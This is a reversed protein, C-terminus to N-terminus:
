QRPAPVAGNRALRTGLNDPLTIVWGGHELDSARLVVEGGDAGASTVRVVWRDGQDIVSDFDHREGPSVPGLSVWGAHDANTVDVDVTYPTPNRITLRNVTAPSQLASSVGFILALALLGAVVFIAVDRAQRTPAAQPHPRTLVPSV